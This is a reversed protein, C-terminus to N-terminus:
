THDAISVDLLQGAAVVPQQGSGLRAADDGYVAGHVGLCAPLQSSM